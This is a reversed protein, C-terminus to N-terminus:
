VCSLRTVTIFNHGRVKILEGFRFGTFALWVQHLTNRPDAIAYIFSSDLEKQFGDLHSRSLRLFKYTNREIGHTGLMWVNSRGRGEKTGGYMAIPEGDDLITYCMSSVAKSQTLGELPTKGSYAAIEECDARRLRPAMYLVHSDEAPTYTLM